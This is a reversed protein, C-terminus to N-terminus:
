ADTSNSSEPKKVNTKDESVKRIPTITVEPKDNLSDVAFKKKPVDTIVSIDDSDAIVADHEHKRKLTKGTSTTM